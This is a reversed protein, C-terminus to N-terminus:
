IRIEIQFYQYALFNCQVSDQDHQLECIEEDSLKIRVATGIKFPCRITLEGPRGESEQLRLKIGALQGDQSIVPEMSTLIVNKCNLHFLWGSQNSEQEMPLFYSPTLYDIAAGIATPADVSVAFRFRRQQEGEIILLNDIMRRHSRRHFSIGGGLFALSADEDRIEVFQPATFKEQYVRDSVENESRYLEADESVWAIRNALYNRWPPGTLDSLLDVKVDFHIKRDHRGISVTQEYEAYPNEDDFLMGKSTVSAVSKETESHHWENASMQTYRSRQRPYGHEFVSQSLRFALQQSFLNGRKEHRNVSKIGGTNQDFQIEFFDNRLSPPIDHPSDVILSPANREILGLQTAPTLVGFSNVIIAKSDSANRSRWVKPRGTPNIVVGEFSQNQVELNYQPILHSESVLEDIKSRVMQMSKKQCVISELESRIADFEEKKVPKGSELKALKSMVQFNALSRLDYYSRWYDIWRSIPDVEKQQWASDLFPSKYDEAEFTDSFGSDYICSNYESFTVFKGFVSGYKMTRVLDGFSECVRGPWHAFLLQCHHYGDLMEGITLGLKLFGDSSNADIPPTSLAPITTGELGQWNITPSSTNSITGGSFAAHVASEFGLQDLVNPLQPNLGSHYGCYTQSAAGLNIEALQQAQRIQNMISEISVLQTPLEFEQSVAFDIKKDKIGSELQEFNEPSHNRINSISQGALCFNTKHSTQLQKKLKGSPPVLVLDILSPETPYFNNKEELLLDFCSALKSRASDSSENKWSHVAALLRQDFEESNLTTSYRLQRTMIQIQLYSYGIAFFDDTLEQNSSRNILGDFCAHRYIEARTPQGDVFKASKNNAAEDFDTSLNACIEPVIILTNALDRDVFDQSVWGPARGTLAILDPHWIATWSALLNAASQGTEHTPFDELSHCPLVVLLQEFNM